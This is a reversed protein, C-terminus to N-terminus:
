GCFWGRIDRHTTHHAKKREWLVLFFFYLNVLLCARMIPTEGADNRSDIFCGRSIMISAIEEWMGPVDLKNNCLYHLALNGKSNGQMVLTDRSDLLLMACTLNCGFCAAHLPTWGLGDTVNVDAGKAMLNKVLGIKNESCAIHLISVDDKANWWEPSPCSGRLLELAEAWSRAQAASKLIDLAVIPEIKSPDEASEQTAQGTFIENLLWPSLKTCKSSFLFFFFFFFFLFFFFFSFAGALAGWHLRPEAAKTTSVLMEAKTTAVLETAAEWIAVLEAETKAEAICVGSEKIVIRKPASWWL